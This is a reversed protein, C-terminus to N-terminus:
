FSHILTLSVNTLALKMMARGGMSHGVMTAKPIQLDEMLKM